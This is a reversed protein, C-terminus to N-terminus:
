GLVNGAMRARRGRYYSAMGPVIYQALVPGESLYKAHEADTRRNKALGVLRSVGNVGMLGLGMVGAGLLGSLLTRGTDTVRDGPIISDKLLAGAITALVIPAIASTRSGLIEALRSKHKNKGKSLKNDVYIHRLENRNDGVGPILSFTSASRLKEETIPEESLHAQIKGWTSAASSLPAGVPRGEHDRNLGSELIVAPISSASDIFSSSGGGVRDYIFESQKEKKM